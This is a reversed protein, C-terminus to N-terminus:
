YNYKKHKLKHCKKCLIIMDVGNEIDDRIKYFHKYGSLTYDSDDKNEHHFELSTKKGCDRCEVSDHGNKNSLKHLLEYRKGFYYKTRRAVNNIQPFYTKLDKVTYDKTEFVM